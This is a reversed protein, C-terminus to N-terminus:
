AEKHQFKKIVKKVYKDRYIRLGHVLLVILFVHGRLRVDAELGTNEFDPIVSLKKPLVPYFMGLVGLVQGTSAPDSLGFKVYGRIRRPLIHKLIAKGETRIVRFAERFTRSRLFEYWERLKTFFGRITAFAKKLARGIKGPIAALRRFLRFVKGDGAGSAEQEAGASEREPAAKERGAETGGPPVSPKKKAGKYRLAGKRKKKLKRRDLWNKLRLVPIGLIRIEWSAKKEQYTIRVHVLHLLWYVAAGAYLEEGQKRVRGSYCVPTFLLCLILVVFIGLIVLLIIGLTSLITLLVHLM